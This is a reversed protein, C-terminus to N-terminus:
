RKLVLGYQRDYAEQAEPSDHRHEDLYNKEVEKYLSLNKSFMLRVKERDYTPMSQNSEKQEKTKEQEKTKVQIGAKAMVESIEQQSCQRLEEELVTTLAAELLDLYVLNVEYEKPKEFYDDIIIPGADKSKIHSDVLQRFDGLIDGDLSRVSHIVDMLGMLYDENDSLITVVSPFSIHEEVEVPISLHRCRSAVEDLAVRNMTGYRIKIQETGAYGGVFIEEQNELAKVNKYTVSRNLDAGSNFYRTFDGEKIWTPKEERQISRPQM